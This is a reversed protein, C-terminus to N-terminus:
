EEDGNDDKGYRQGVYWLLFGFMILAIFLGTVTDSDM